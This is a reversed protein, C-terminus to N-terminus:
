QCLGSAATQLKGHRDGAQADFRNDQKEKETNPPLTKYQLGSKDQVDNNHPLLCTSNGHFVRYVQFPGPDLSESDPHPHSKRAWGEGPKSYRDTIPWELCRM